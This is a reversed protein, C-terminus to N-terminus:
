DDWFKQVSIQNKITTLNKSFEEPKMKETNKVLYHDSFNKAIEYKVNQDNEDELEDSEMLRALIIANRMTEGKTKILNAAISSIDDITDTAIEAPSISENLSRIKPQFYKEDLLQNKVKSITSSDDKTTEEAKKLGENLEVEFKKACTLNSPIKEEESDTAGIQENVYKKAMEKILGAGHENITKVGSFLHIQRGLKGEVEKKADDFSIKKLDYSSGKIMAFLKKGRGITREFVTNEKFKGNPTKLVMKEGSAVVQSLVRFNHSSNELKM